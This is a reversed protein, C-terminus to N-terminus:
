YTMRASTLGTTAEAGQGLANLSRRTRLSDALIAVFGLLPVAGILMVWGFWPVAGVNSLADLGLSDTDQRM